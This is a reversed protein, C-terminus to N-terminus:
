HSVCTLAVDGEGYRSYRLFDELSRRQMYILLGLITSFGVIEFWFYYEPAKLLAGIFIGLSRYNASLLSWRRVLPAFDERYRQRVLAAREPQRRIPEPNNV